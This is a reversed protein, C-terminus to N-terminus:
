GQDPESPPRRPLAVSFTAGEGPASTVTLLGGHAAVIQRSIYLGLGLGGHNRSAAREFREFIRAQQEAPIGMGRDRVGLRVEEEDGELTVDVPAGPAYRAANGLLNTM